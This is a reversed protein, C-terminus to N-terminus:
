RNRVGLVKWGDGSSSDAPSSIRPPVQSTNVGWTPVDPYPLPLGKLKAVANLMTARTYAKRKLNEPSDGLEPQAAKIQREAESPSVAAGSKLPMVEAEFAAAGQEYEQYDDGGVFKAFGRLPRIDNQGVKLGVSDMVKAAANDLNTDLAFPNGRSEVRAMAKQGELMAPAGLELRSRMSAELPQQKGTETYVWQGGKRVVPRGTKRDFGTRARGTRPDIDSSTPAPM